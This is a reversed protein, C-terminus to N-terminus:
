GEFARLAAIAATRQAKLLGKGAAIRAEAVKISAYLALIAPAAERMGATWQADAEQEFGGVAGPVPERSPPLVDWSPRAAQLLDILTM